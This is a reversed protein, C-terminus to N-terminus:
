ESRNKRNGQQAGTRGTGTDADADMNTIDTDTDAAVMMTM